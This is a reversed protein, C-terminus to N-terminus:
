FPSVIIHFIFQPITRKCVAQHTFSPHTYRSLLGTVDDYVALFPLYLCESPVAFCLSPFSKDRLSNRGEDEDRTMKRCYTSASTWQQRDASLTSLRFLCCFLVQKKGGRHAQSLWPFGKETRRRRKIQWEPLIGRKSSSRYCHLVM